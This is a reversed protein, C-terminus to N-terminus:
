SKVITLKELKEVGDSDREAFHRPQKTDLDYYLCASINHPREQQKQELRFSGLLDANHSFIAGAITSGQTFHDFLHFHRLVGFVRAGEASLYTSQIRSTTTDPCFASNQRVHSQNKYSDKFLFHTPIQAHLRLVQLFVTAPPAHVTLYTFRM